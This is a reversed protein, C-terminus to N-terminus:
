TSHQASPDATAVKEIWLSGTHSIDGPFADELKERKHHHVMSASLRVRYADNHMLFAQVFYQENWSLGEDFIWKPWYDHPWFTDHVHIWVGPHLVPLVEFFMWNVDSGTRVCHSGDYFLVDGAGLQRFVDLDVDQVLSPVVQWHKPLEGLINWRPEPEILTVESSNDNLATARKLLASSIGAGVEVVRSPRLERLLGYYAYADLGDFAHGWVFEGPAPNGGGRVDALEGSYGSLRMALELQADLDWDIEPPLKPKTWLERNGRLFDLDNLPWYFHAPQFHWGRRQVEQFAMTALLEM